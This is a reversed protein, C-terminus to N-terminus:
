ARVRNGSHRVHRARSPASSPAPSLPTASGGKHQAFAEYGSPQALDPSQLAKGQASLAARHTLLDQALSRFSVMVGQGSLAKATVALPGGHKLMLTASPPPALTPDDAFNRLKAWFETPETAGQWVALAQDFGKDGLDTCPDSQWLTVYRNNTMISQGSADFAVIAEPLADMVQHATEIELRFSRAMTMESTVDEIFFAIAGNPQPKGTVHYIRGSPLCWEESFDGAQAAAELEILDRRWTGFDKPEPLLRMERLMLLFQELGPRGALFLPDLATLDVLAPNFVQLKRDKDFLALGVPLSAFTRALTQLIEIRAAESQVTADIPTAFHLTLQESKETHYSFWADKGHIDLSLRAEQGQSSAFLKPLPWTLDELTQQSERLTTLYAANAWIVRGDDDQQWILVPAHRTVRRLMQLESRMSDLSLRDLTVLAGEQMPDALSLHTLGRRYRAQLIVGSGDASALTFEGDKALNALKAQMDPFRTFMDSLLREFASEKACTGNDLALSALYHRGRESMDILKEGRFVFAVDDAGAVACADTTPQARRMVSLVLLIVGLVVLATSAVVTLGLLLSDSM